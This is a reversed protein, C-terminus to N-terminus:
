RGRRTHVTLEATTDVDVGGAADVAVDLRAGAVRLGRVSLPFWSAFAAPPEVWLEGAPVDARLGLAATVLAAAAAASWAQPRCAAPYALVPEGAAAATGGYLEPLRFDFVRGAAVLGRALAAAPGPHGARAAALVAIATDHPWVSGTHYGLPNFSRHSGALTRLGYGSDLDPASLRAAVLATEAEDLLGTGPLHGINSSLSAVPTGAADLALAPFPGHEDSVWFAARFRDALAAAHKRAAEAAPGDGDVTSLLAAADLLARHVYAQAEVLAIPAAAIRGDPHQVADGSDKWGQNALGRGSADVYRVFGDAGAAHETLWGVAAHLAPLLERVTAEPLGWRWADHLLTVWLPTADITGYYVPPLGHGGPPPPGSRVEHLIKGPQEGTEPDVRGGQREALVRLTGLALDTGFPLMLQATWLSDRGFLTFYWPTGAAAFVQEPRDRPAMRLGELDALSRHVLATLDRDVSDVGSRRWPAPDPAGALVPARPDTDPRPVDATLVLEVQATGRPPVALRWSLEAATGDVTASDPPPRVAVTAAGEPRRWHVTGGDLAPRAPAPPRGRRVAVVPALDSGLRLTLTAGVPRRADNILLVTERVAGVEVRRRRELRVTPDSQEDGLGPLVAVFAVRAADGIAHGVPEPERGAVTLVLESLVRLDAHLVGAAGGPRVQGDPDSLVTTPAALCSVLRHLSPHGGDLAVRM